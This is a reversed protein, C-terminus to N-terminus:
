VILTTISLRHLGFYAGRYISLPPINPKLSDAKIIPIIYIQLHKSPPEKARFSYNKHM